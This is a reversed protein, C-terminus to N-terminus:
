GPVFRIETQFHLQHALLLTEPKLNLSRGKITIRVAMQVGDAQLKLLFKRENKLMMQFWNLKDDVVNGQLPPAKFVLDAGDYIFEPFHSLVADAKSGPSLIRIEVDGQKNHIMHNLNRFSNGARGPGSRANPRNM